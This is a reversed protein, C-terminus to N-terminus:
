LALPNTLDLIIAVAGLFVMLAIVAAAIPVLKRIDAERKTVKEYLAVAFHGGDLPYLPIANFIGLIINVSALIFVLGEIGVRDVQTGLQALGIPSVPRIDDAVQTDGFLAGGLDILSSPKVLRGIAFLSEKTLDIFLQGASGAARLPGISVETVGPSVGLFGVESGTIPNTPALEATLTQIAGGREIEIDISTGPRAAILETAQDWSELPIGDIRLLQDGAQLGALAAPSMTGDGLDATVGSITTNAEVLGSSWLLFFLIIFAMAFNLVVGSLVVVSKQWFKKEYYTKGADAPDIEEYPNMGLIRVYGGFPIAKIGYETDGRTTSWIRPGFGIFAETAKMGTARAAVFHGAEHVLIFAAISFIMALAGFM